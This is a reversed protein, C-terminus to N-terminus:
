LRTKAKLRRHLGTILCPAEVVGSGPLKTQFVQDSAVKEEVEQKQETPGFEAQERGDRGLQKAKDKKQQLCLSIFGKCFVDYTM